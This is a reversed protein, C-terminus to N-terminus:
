YSLFVLASRPRGKLNKLHFAPLFSKIQWNIHARYKKFPCSFIWCFFLWIFLLFTERMCSDWYLKTCFSDRRNTYLCSVDALIVALDLLLPKV